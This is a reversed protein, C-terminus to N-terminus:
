VNEPSRLEPGEQQRVSLYEQKLGRGGGGGWLHQQVPGPRIPSHDQKRVGLVAMRERQEERKQDIRKKRM